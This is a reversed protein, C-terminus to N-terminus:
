AAQWLGLLGLAVVFLAALLDPRSPGARELSDGDRMGGHFVPLLAPVVAARITL